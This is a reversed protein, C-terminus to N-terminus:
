SAEVKMDRSQNSIKRAWAVAQELRDNGWFMEGDPTFFTPSGFMGRAGAEETNKKLAAKVDERM